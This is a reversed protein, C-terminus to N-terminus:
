AVECAYAPRKDTPERGHVVVGVRLGAFAFLPQMSNADREALYDNVTVVHVPVGACAVLCAALGATLTKGEGTQMEALQGRVLTAAGGLQTPYPRMGLARHAAEAVLLLAQHLAANAGAQMAQPAVARLRALLAADELAALEAAQAQMAQALVRIEHAPRAALLHRASALLGLAWYGMGERLQTRAAIGVAVALTASLAMIVLFLTPVHAVM